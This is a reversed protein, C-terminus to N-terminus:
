NIVVKPERVYSSYKALVDGNIRAGDIRINIPSNFYILTRGRISIGYVDTTIAGILEINM